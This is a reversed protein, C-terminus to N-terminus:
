LRCSDRQTIPCPMCLLALAFRYPRSTHSITPRLRLTRLTPLISNIVFCLSCGQCLAFRLIYALVWFRLLNRLRKHLYKLTSWSGLRESSSTLFASLSISHMLFSPRLSSKRIISQRTRIKPM